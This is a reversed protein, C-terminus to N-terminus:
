LVAVKEFLELTGNMIQVRQGVFQVQNRLVSDLEIGVKGFISVTCVQARVVAAGARARRTRQVAVVVVILVSM